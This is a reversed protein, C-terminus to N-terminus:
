AGKEKDKKAFSARLGASEKNAYTNVSAGVFDLAEEIQSKSYKKTGHMLGEATLSALGNKNGDYIAGAPLVVSLNIM